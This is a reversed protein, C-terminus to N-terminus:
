IAPFGKAECLCVGYSHQPIWFSTGEVRILSSIILSSDLIGEIKQNSEHRRSRYTGNQSSPGHEQCSIEIPALRQLVRLVAVVVHRRCSTDPVSSPHHLLRQWSQRQANTGLATKDSDGDVNGGARRGEGLDLYGGNHVIHVHSSAVTQSAVRSIRLGPGM